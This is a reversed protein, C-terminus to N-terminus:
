GVIGLKFAKEINKPFILLLLPKAYLKVLSLEGLKGRASFFLGESKRDAAGIALWM